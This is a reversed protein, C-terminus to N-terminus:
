IAQADYADDPYEWALANVTVSVGVAAATAFINVFLIDRSHVVFAHENEITTFPIQQGNQVCQTLAANQDDGIYIAASVGTLVSTDGNGLVTIRPVRWIRGANPTGLSLIRADFQNMNGIAVSQALPRYIPKPQRMADRWSRKLDAMGESLEQGSAIDFEAGLAIRANAM